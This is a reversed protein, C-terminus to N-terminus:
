VGLQPIALTPSGGAGSMGTLLSPPLGSGKKKLRELREKDINELRQREAEARREAEGIQRRQERRNKAGEQKASYGSYGSALAGTISTVLLAWEVPTM